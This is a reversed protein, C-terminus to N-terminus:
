TQNQIRESGKQIRHLFRLHMGASLLLLGIALGCTLFAWPDTLSPKTEFHLFKSGFAVGVADPVTPPPASILTELSHISFRRRATRYLYVAIRSTASLSLLGGIVLLFWSSALKIM